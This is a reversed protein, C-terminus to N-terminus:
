MEEITNLQLPIIKLAVTLTIEMNEQESKDNIMTEASINYESSIFTIIIVIIFMGSNQQSNECKVLRCAYLNHLGRQSQLTV